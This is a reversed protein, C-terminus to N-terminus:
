NLLGHRVRQWIIIIIICLVTRSNVRSRQVFTPWRWTAAMEYTLSGSKDAAHPWSRFRFLVLVYIRCVKFNRWTLKENKRPGKIIKKWFISKTKSLRGQIGGHFDASKEMINLLRTQQPPWMRAAESWDTPVPMLASTFANNTGLQFLLYFEIIFQVWYEKRLVWYETM